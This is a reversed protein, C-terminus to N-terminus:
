NNPCSAQPLPFFFPSYLADKILAEQYRKHLLGSRSKMASLKNGEDLKAEDSSGQNTNLLKFSKRTNPM